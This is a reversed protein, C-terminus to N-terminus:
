FLRFCYNRNITHNVADDCFITVKLVGHILIKSCYSQFFSRTPSKKFYFVSSPRNNAVKYYLFNWEGNTINWELNKSLFGVKRYKVPAKSM